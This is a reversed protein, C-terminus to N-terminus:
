KLYREPAWVDDMLGLMVLGKEIDKYTLGDRVYTKVLRDSFEEMDADDDFIIISKKHINLNRCFERIECGRSQLLRPTVGEIFLHYRELRGSLIAVHKESSRWSSSLIIRPTIGTEELIRCFEKFIIIKQEDIVASIDVSKDKEWLQHNYIFASESNLVGDVDLFIWINRNEM